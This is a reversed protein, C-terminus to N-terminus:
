RMGSRWSPTPWCMSTRAFAAITASRWGSRLGADRQGAVGVYRLCVINLHVPAILELETHRRIRGALYKAQAVNQEVLRAYKEIGHEKLLMWVKLARFERSLDPGWRM